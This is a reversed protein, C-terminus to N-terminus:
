RRGGFINMVHKLPDSVPKAVPAAENASWVTEPRSQLLLIDGSERDIYTVVGLQAAGPTTGDAPFIADALATYILLLFLLRYRTWFLGRNAPWFRAVLVSRKAGSM